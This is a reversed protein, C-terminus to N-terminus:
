KYVLVNLPASQGLNKKWEVLKKSTFNEFEGRHKKIAVSYAVSYVM